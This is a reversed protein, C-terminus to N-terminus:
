QHGDACQFLMSPRAQPSLCAGGHKAAYQQARALINECDRCWSGNLLVEFSEWVHNLACRYLLPQWSDTCHSSLCEGGHEVAMTRAQDISSSPANSFYYDANKQCFNSEDDDLRIKSHKKPRLKSTSKAKEAPLRVQSPEGRPPHFNDM